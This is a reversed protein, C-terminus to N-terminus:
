RERVIFPAAPTKTRMPGKPLIYWGTIATFFLILKKRRGACRRQLIWVGELFVEPLVGKKQLMDPIERLDKVHWIGSM